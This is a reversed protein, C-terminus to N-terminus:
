RGAIQLMGYLMGFIAVLVYVEIFSMMISNGGKQTQRHGKYVMLIFGGHHFRSSNKMLDVGQAFKYREGLGGSSLIREEFVIGAPGLEYEQVDASWKADM